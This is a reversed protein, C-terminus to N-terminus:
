AQLSAAGNPRTRPRMAAHDTPAASTAMPLPDPEYRRRGYHCHLVSLGLRLLAPADGNLGHGNAGWTLPPQDLVATHITIAALPGLEGVAAEFRMRADIAGISPPAPAEFKKPPMSADPEYRGVLRGITDAGARRFDTAFRMGACAQDVTIVKAALLQDLQDVHRATKLRVKADEAAAAGRERAAANIQAREARRREARTPRKRRAMQESPESPERELFKRSPARLIIAGRITHLM